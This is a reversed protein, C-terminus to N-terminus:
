TRVNPHGSKLAVWSRVNPYAGEIIGSMYTCKNIGRRYHWEHVYM